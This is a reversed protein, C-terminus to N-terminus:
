VDTRYDDVDKINDPVDLYTISQVMGIPIHSPTSFQVTNEDNHDVMYTGMMTIHGEMFDPLIWGVSVPEMAKPKYEKLDVWGSPGDFADLWVVIALKPNHNKNPKRPM